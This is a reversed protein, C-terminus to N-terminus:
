ERNVNGVLSDHVFLLFDLGFFDGLDAFQGFGFHQGDGTTRLDRVIGDARGGSEDAYVLGRLAANAAGKRRGENGREFM